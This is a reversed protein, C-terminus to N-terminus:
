TLEAIFTDDALKGQVYTIRIDGDDSSTILPNEFASIPKALTTNNYDWLFQMSNIKKSHIHVSQTNGPEDNRIKIIEGISSGAYQRIQDFDLAYGSFDFLLCHFTLDFIM